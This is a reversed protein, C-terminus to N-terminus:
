NSKDILKGNRNYREWSIKKDDRMIRLEEIKGNAYYWEWRGNLKGDIYNEVIKQGNLYYYVSRGHLKGKSFHQKKGLSGDGDYERWYGEKMGDKFKGNKFIDGVDGTFPIDTFIQYYLGDREVLDDISVRESWVPSSLSLIVLCFTLSLNKM